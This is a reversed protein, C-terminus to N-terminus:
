LKGGGAGKIEFDKTTKEKPLDVSVSYERFLAAGNPLQPQAVGDFGAIKVVQPGGVVGQGGAKTDYKGDKITAFGAAGSNGKTKDPQFTVSGAPVPKGAYTVTGSVDYRQPGGSQKGCGGLCAATALLILM